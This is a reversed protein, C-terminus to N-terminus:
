TPVLRRLKPLLAPAIPSFVEDLKKISTEDFFKENRLYFYSDIAYKITVALMLENISSFTPFLETESSRTFSSIHIFLCLKDYNKKHVESCPLIQLLNEINCNGRWNNMKLLDDKTKKDFIELLDDKLEAYESFYKKPIEDPIDLISDKHKQYIKHFEIEPFRIFRELFRKKKGTESNMLVTTAYLEMLARTHHNSAFFAGQKLDGIYGSSEEMLRHIVEKAFVGAIGAPFESELEELIPGSELPEELSDPSPGVTRFLGSDTLNSDLGVFPVTEVLESEATEAGAPIAAFVGENSDFFSIENNGILVMLKCISDEFVLFLDNERLIEEMQIRYLGCLFWPDNQLSM